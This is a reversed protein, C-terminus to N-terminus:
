EMPGGPPELFLSLVRGIRLLAPLFWPSVLLHFLLFGPLPLLGLWAGRPRASERTHPRLSWFNWVAIGWLFAGAAALLSAANMVFALGVFRTLLVNREKHRAAGEPDSSAPAGPRGSDAAARRYADVERSTWAGFVGSSLVLLLLVIPLALNEPHSEGRQGSFMTM